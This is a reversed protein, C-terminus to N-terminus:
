AVVTVPQSTESVAEGATVRLTLTYAGATGAPLPGSVVRDPIPPPPLLPQPEDTAPAFGLAAPDPEVVVPTRGDAPQPSFTWRYRLANVAQYTSQPWLPPAAAAAGVAPSVRRDAPLLLVAGAVHVVCPAEADPPAGGTIGARRVAALADPDDSEVDKATLTVVHSGPSLSVTAELRTAIAVLALDPPSGPDPRPPATPLSSWWRYQLPGEAPDPGQGSLVLPDGVTVVRGHAPTTITLPM